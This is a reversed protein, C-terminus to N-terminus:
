RIPPTYLMFEVLKTAEQERLRDVSLWRGGLDLWLRKSAPLYWGSQSGRVARLRTAEALEAPGPRVGAEVPNRLGYATLFLRGKELIWAAGPFDLHGVSPGGVDDGTIYFGKGWTLEGEKEPLWQAGGFAQAASDWGVSALNALDTSGLKVRFASAPAQDFTPDVPVWRDKLKVEVWFHLALTDGLAAWGMAGRAPVGLRRLLAVALVGHETCDGKPNRCVEAANAFGVTYDKETIWEFVFTTVRKALDWRSAGAPAALRFMPGEFAPDKFPVLPTPALFPQDAPDPKGKVPLERAEEASPEASRRLVVRQEGIKKQQGDEPLDLKEGGTWRVTLEPIWASFPHPPLRKMTREFLGKQPAEGPAPLEARQVLVPLGMLQSSQKLEGDKPSVWLEAELKMPGEQIRGKFKVADPWGPLPDAGACALDMENWGEADPNFSTARLASRTRAAEKLRLNLDEPWLLAGAPVAIEKPAQGRPELKVVAPRAPTWSAKGALPEQAVKVSWSFALSGDKAKLVAHMAEQEVTVAGRSVKLWERTEIRQGELLSARQVSTGGAEQGALWLRFRVTEQASACTALLLFPLFLRPVFRM